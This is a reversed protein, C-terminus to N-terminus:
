KSTSPSDRNYDDFDETEPNRCTFCRPMDEKMADEDLVFEADCTWCISVRGEVLHELNVHMFHKCDPLACRWSKVFKGSSKIYKHTHQKSMNGVHLTDQIPSVQTQRAYDLM